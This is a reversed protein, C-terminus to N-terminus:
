HSEDRMRRIVIEPLESNASFPIISLAGLYADPTPEPLVKITRIGRITLAHGTTADRKIWGEVIARRGWKDSIRNEDGPALFCSVAKDESASYMTFRVSGRNSMSQIRGEIAGQALFVKPKTDRRTGAMVRSDAEVTEFRIAPIKGNILSTLGETHSIAKPTIPPQRGEQLDKGVISYLHAVRSIREPSKSRGQATMIASSANLDSIIWEVKGESAGGTMKTLENVLGMFQSVAKSFDDLSVEGELVLTLTEPTDAM